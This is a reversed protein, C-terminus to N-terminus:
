SSPSLEFFVAKYSPQAIQSLIKTDGKSLMKRISYICTAFAEASSAFTMFRRKKHPPLDYM